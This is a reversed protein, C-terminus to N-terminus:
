RSAQSLVEGETPPEAEMSNIYLGAAADALAIRLKDNKGSLFFHVCAGDWVDGAGTVRSPSIHRIKHSVTEHGDSSFSADETHLDVRADLERAILSCLLEESGARLHLIKGTVTAEFRNLSLWDVVRERKVLGLFDRYRELRDRVDAPDFFIRKNVGLNERLARALENGRINAAWNVMCVVSSDEMAKWDEEDLLSPPFEGAGGLDGLMVNVLKKRNRGELAVTLGPPRGKLSLAVKLGRFTERLLSEHNKDTQAVLFVRDGLTGLAHALNIANGGRIESQKVDHIGGGGQEVKNRVSALFRGFDGVYVLRDVFFDHLVAAEFKLTM